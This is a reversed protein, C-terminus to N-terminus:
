GYKCRVKEHHADYDFGYVKARQKVEGSWREYDPGSPELLSVQLLAEYAERAIADYQDGREWSPDGWYSYFKFLVVDFFVFEGTQIYGMQHAKVLIDRVTEGKVSLVIM